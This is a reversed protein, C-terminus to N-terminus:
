YHELQQKLLSEFDSRPLKRGDFRAAWFEAVDAVIKSPEHAAALQVYGALRNLEEPRKKLASIGESKV